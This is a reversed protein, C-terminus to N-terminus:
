ENFFKKAKQIEAETPNPKGLTFLYEKLIKYKAEQSQETAKRISDDCQKRLALVEDRLKVIEEKWAARLTGIAETQLVDRQEGELEALYALVDARTYGCPTELGKLINKPNKANKLLLYLKRVVVFTEVQSKTLFNVVGFYRAKINTMLNYVLEKDTCLNSRISSVVSEGNDMRYVHWYASSSFVNWLIQYARDTFFGTNIKM